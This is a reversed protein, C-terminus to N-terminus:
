NFRKKGMQHSDTAKILNLANEENIRSYAFSSILRKTNKMQFLGKM